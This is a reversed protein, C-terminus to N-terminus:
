LEKLLADCVYRLQDRTLNLPPPLNLGRPCIDCSVQNRGRAQRAQDLHQYAPLSSLPHFFPRCDIDKDRMASKLRDRDIGLNKDLLVTVMWYSNKTTAPEPNLTLGDIDSLADRYWGFIERERVILADRRELQALGFAAQMSSIKYNYAVETNRFQKEGRRAARDASTTSNDSVLIQVECGAQSLVSDLAKPVLDARNRTPIVVVLSTYRTVKARWNANSAHRHLCM